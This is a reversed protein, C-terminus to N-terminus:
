LTTAGWMMCRALKTSTAFASLPLAAPLANAEEGAMVAGEIAVKAHLVGVARLIGSQANQHDQWGPAHRRDVLSREGAKPLTCLLVVDYSQEKLM